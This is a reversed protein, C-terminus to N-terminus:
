MQFGGGSQNNEPHARGAVGRIGVTVTLSREVHQIEDGL